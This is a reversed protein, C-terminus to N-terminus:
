DQVYTRREETSCQLKVWSKEFEVVKQVLKRKGQLSSFDPNWQTLVLFISKLRHYDIKRM